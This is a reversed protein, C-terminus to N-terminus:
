ISLAINFLSFVIPTLDKCPLGQLFWFNSAPGLVHDPNWEGSSFWNVCERKCQARKVHTCIKEVWISKIYYVHCTNM